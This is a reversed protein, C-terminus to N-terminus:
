NSQCVEKRAALLVPEGCDPLEVQPQGVFLAGFRSDTRSFADNRRRRNDAEYIQSIDPARMPGTDRM